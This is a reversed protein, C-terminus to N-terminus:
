TLVVLDDDLYGLIELVVMGLLLLLLWQGREEVDPYHWSEGVELRWPSSAKPLLVKGLEWTLQIM